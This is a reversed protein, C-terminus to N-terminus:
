NYSDLIYIISCSVASNTRDYAATSADDTTTCGPNFASRYSLLKGGSPSTDDIKLDIGYMDVPSLFPAYPLNDTTKAGYEITTGYSAPYATTPTSYLGWSIIGAGTNNGYAGAPVNQGPVGQAFGGAGIVGTYSGEILGANALHQWARFLESYQGGVAGSSSFGIYNSGDGNCTAKKPVRNTHNPCGDPDAGWQETADVYDGPLAQYIEKFKTYATKYKGLDTIVGNIKARNILSQGGVIGGALLGIIALVIAMEVLTFGHQGHANKM